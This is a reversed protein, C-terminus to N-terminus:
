GCHLDTAKLLQVLVVGFHPLLPVCKDMRLRSSHDVEREARRLSGGSVSGLHRAPLLLALGMSLRSLTVSLIIGARGPISCCDDLGYGCVSQSEAPFSVDLAVLSM